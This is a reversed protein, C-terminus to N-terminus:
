KTVFQEKKSNTFIQRAQLTRTNDQEAWSSKWQLLIIPSPLHKTDPNNNRIFQDCFDYKTLQALCTPGFIKELFKKYSRERINEQIIVKVDKLFTLITQRIELNTGLLHSM